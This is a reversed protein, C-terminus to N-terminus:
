PKAAFPLDFLEYTSSGAVIEGILHYAGSFGVPVTWDYTAQWDASDAAIAGAFPGAVVANDKFITFSVTFGGATLPVSPSNSHITRAAFQVPERAVVTSTGPALGFADLTGGIYMHGTATITPPLGPLLPIFQEIPGPDMNIRAPSSTFNFSANNLADALTDGDRMRLAVAIAEAADVVGTGMAYGYDAYTHGATM